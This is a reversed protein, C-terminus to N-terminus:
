PPRGEGIGWPMWIREIEHLKRSFSGSDYIPAGVPTSAGEEPFDQIRWQQGEASSIM